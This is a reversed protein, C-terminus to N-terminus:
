LFWVVVRYLGVCTFLNYGTPLYSQFWTCPYFPRQGGWQLVGLSIHPLGLSSLLGLSRCLVWTSSCQWFKTCRLKSSSSKSVVCIEVDWGWWVLASVTGTSVVLNHTWLSGVPARWWRSGLVLYMRIWCHRVTLPLSKISNVCLQGLWALWM